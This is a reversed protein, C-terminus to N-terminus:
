SNCLHVFYIKLIIGKNEYNLTPHHNIEMVNGEATLHSENCIALGKITNLATDSSCVAFSYALHKRKLEHIDEVASGNSLQSYALGM